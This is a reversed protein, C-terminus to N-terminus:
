WVIPAESSGSTERVTKNKQIDDKELLLMRVVDGKKVKKVNGDKVEAVTYKAQVNVAILEATKNGDIKIEVGTDPDKMTRGQTFLAFVDGEKIRAKGQNLYVEEASVVDL